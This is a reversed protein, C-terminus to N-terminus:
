AFWRAAQEMERPILTHGADHWALTVVAGAHKLLDALRQTSAAPVMPDDRGASILIQKGKLDPLQAPEFPVMPRLLVAGALSEPRLLMLSAGINAGNSYGVVYVQAPDFKYQAAARALFDALEITRARLDAEDFVGEAIRRFFRPMGNELVRGRPSLIAADSSLMRALPILDNEDGGTGHLALLTPAAATAGPIFRHIFDIAM